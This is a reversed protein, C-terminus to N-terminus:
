KKICCMLMGNARENLPRDMSSGTFIFTILSRAPSCSFIRSLRKDLKQLIVKQSEPTTCKKLSTDMKMHMVIFDKEAILKAAKQSVQKNGAVVEVHPLTQSTNSFLEEYHKIGAPTAVLALNMSKTVQFISYAYAHPNGEIATSFPQNEKYTDEQKESDLDVEEQNQIIKAGQIVDGYAIDYKLKHQVLELSAKADESPDHGATSQQIDRKLYMKTLLKLSSRRKRCHTLNYILSSDIVYPHMMKMAKLDSNLSHGVLIADTPLIKRLDNHVDELTKKVYRLKEETIGSYKTLYNIIRNQPKVLTHYVLKGQENVVSISTLELQKISTLCMECDVGFMPSNVAVEKYEEHSFSYEPDKYGLCGPVPAPFGHDCMDEAGLLLCRRDFNDNIEFKKGDEFYFLINDCENKQILEKSNVNALPFLSAVAKHVLGSREAHKLNRYRKVLKNKKTDSLPVNLLERCPPESYKSPALLELKQEMCKSARPLSECLWVPDNESSIEEENNVSSSTAKQLDMISIGEVIVTIIQSLRHGNTICAWRAVKHTKTIANVLMTRVDSMFIPTRSTSGLKLSGYEGAEKLKIRPVESRIKLFKKKKLYEEDTYLEKKTHCIAQDWYKKTEINGDNDNIEAMDFYAKLKRKKSEKRKLKREAM